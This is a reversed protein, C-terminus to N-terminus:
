TCFCVFSLICIITYFNEPPVNGTCRCVVQLENIYTTDKLFAAFHGRVLSINAKLLASTQITTWLHM